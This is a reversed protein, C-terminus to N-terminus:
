GVVGKRGKRGAGPTQRPKHMPAAGGAGEARRAGANGPEPPLRALADYLCAAVASSLNLSRVGREPMPVTYCQRPFRKLISKPLGATEKGFVLWDGWAMPAHRYSATAHTSYLHFSLPPLDAMFPELEPEHEWSVYPWYDLGARRLAADDLSFGLEGVLVLHCRAAACMRAINGTNPPIQPEVLVVRLPPDAIRKSSGPYLRPM